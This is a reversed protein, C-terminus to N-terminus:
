GENYIHRETLPFMLARDYCVHKVWIIEGSHRLTWRPGLLGQLMDIQYKQLATLKDKNAM